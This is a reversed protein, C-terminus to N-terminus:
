KEKLRKFLDEQKRKGERIETIDNELKQVQQLSDKNVKELKKFERRAVQCSERSCENMKPIKLKGNSTPSSKIKGETPETSNSELREIEKELKAITEKKNKIEKNLFKNTNQVNTLQICAKGM